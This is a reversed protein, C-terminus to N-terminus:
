FAYVLGLTLWTGKQAIRSDVNSFAANGPMSLPALGQRGYVVSGLNSEFQLGKGFDYNVNVTNLLAWNRQGREEPNNTEATGLWVMGTGFVWAGWRYRLGLLLDISEARYGLDDPSNYNVNFAISQQANASWVHNAGSWKNYRVGASAELQSNLQYRGMAMALLQDNGGTLLYNDGVKAKDDDAAGTLAQFPAHGWSGPGGNVGNQVMVDLVLDGRHYQGYLELLQPKLRTFKTNGGDYTAELFLDGGAVDLLPGAVRIANGLMGYGAGSSGWASALGAQTGYPYDAVSWSRTTMHGVRVSGYDEHSLAINSEYEYGPVDVLGNYRMEGPDKSGNATGQRWRQSFLANLKVGKGLDHKYGLYPQVQWNTMSATGYNANPVIFDATRVQRNASIDAVQCKKPDCYNGQSTVTVQGFGTLSFEGENGFDLALAGGHLALSGALACGSLFLSKLSTHRNIKM